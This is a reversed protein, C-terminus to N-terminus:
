NLFYFPKKVNIQDNIHMIKRLTPALGLPPSNNNISEIIVPLKIKQKM